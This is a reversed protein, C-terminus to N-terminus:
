DFDKRTMLYQSKDFDRVNGTKMYHKYTRRARRNHEKVHKKVTAARWCTWKPKYEAALIAGGTFIDM